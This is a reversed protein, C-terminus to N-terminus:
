WADLGEQRESDNQLQCRSPTGTKTLVCIEKLNHHHSHSDLDPKGRVKLSLRANSSCGGRLSSM